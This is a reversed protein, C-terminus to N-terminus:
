ARLCLRQHYRRNTTIIKSKDWGITHNTLCTHESFAAKRKELLLGSKSAREFTYWASTQDTQYVWSWLWQVFLIFPTPENNKRSMIRLHPLFIGWLRSLNKLLKLTTAIWFERSPNQVVMFTPFLLLALRQNGRMLLAVLQLQNEATVPSIKPIVM